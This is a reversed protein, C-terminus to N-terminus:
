CESILGATASHPNTNEDFFRAVAERISQPAQSSEPNIGRVLCESMLRADVSNVIKEVLAADPRSQQNGINNYNNEYDSYLRWVKPDDWFGAKRLLTIVEEETDAHMLALCLEKAEKSDM